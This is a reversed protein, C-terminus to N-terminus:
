FSYVARLIGTHGTFPRYIYNLLVTNVAGTQGPELIPFAIGQDIDGGLAFDEVDYKHFWYDVGIAWQNTIHRLVGLETRHEVHRVPPLQEPAALTSGAPISYLFTTRANSYDYNVRVDTRAFLEPLDLHALV